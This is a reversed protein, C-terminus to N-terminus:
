FWGKRDGDQYLRVAYQDPSISHKNSKRQVRGDREAQAYLRCVTEPKRGHEAVLQRMLDVQRVTKLM